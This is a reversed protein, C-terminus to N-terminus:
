AEITPKQSENELGKLGNTLDNLTKKFNEIMKDLVLGHQRLRQIYHSADELDHEQIKIKMDKEDLMELLRNATSTTVEGGGEIHKKVSHRFHKEEVEHKKMEEGVRLSSNVKEKKYIHKAFDLIM